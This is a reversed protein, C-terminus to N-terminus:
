ISWVKSSAVPQGNKDIFNETPLFAVSEWSEKPVKMPVTLLGACLYQHFCEEPAFARSNNAKLSKAVVKRFTPNLYHLNYGYFGNNLLQLVYVLPRTDWYKLQKAYKADYTFFYLNNPTVGCISDLDPIRDQFKELETSLRNAFWQKSRRQGSTTEKLIVDGIPKEKKKM